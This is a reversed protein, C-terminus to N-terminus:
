VPNSYYVCFAKLYLSKKFCITLSSKRDTFLFEYEPTEPKRGIFPISCIILLFIRPQKSTAAIIVEAKEEQPLEEDFVEEEEPESDEELLEEEEESASLEESVEEAAQSGM